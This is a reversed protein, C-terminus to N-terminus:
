QNAVAFNLKQNSPILAADITWFLLVKIKTEQSPHLM